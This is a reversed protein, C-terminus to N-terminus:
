TLLKALEDVDSVSELERTSLEVDFRDRIYSGLKNDSGVIDSLPTNDLIDTEEIGYKSALLAKIETKTVM